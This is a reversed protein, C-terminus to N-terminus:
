RRWKSFQRPRWMWYKKAFTRMEEFLNLEPLKGKDKLVSALSDTGLCINVGATALEARPFLLHKFYEHSRPCHVVSVNYRALVAADDRWLYNVHVALLNEDLFDNRELHHVPSGLGCDSMDRQTRLWEYLPGHKYLFMDFEDESESVHTVLRWRRKRAEHAAIQLLEGTSTYPAHPSLGVRGESDPLATCEDITKRVLDGAHQGGKLSILERFSIVRLPTAEWVGPLLEPITEVDGVTTTGNRLLMEAGARWSQAFDQNTWSGKMAVIARIWDTFTKQPPIQGAMGTYDLHAHANVLGPLLVAEGLDVVDRREEASFGNWPRVAVIRNASILVAGDEIPPQSVPLVIRARLLM